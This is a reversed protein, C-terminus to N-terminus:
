KGPSAPPPVQPSGILQGGRQCVQVKEVTMVPHRFLTGLEPLVMAIEKGRGVAIVTLPTDAAHHLFQLHQRRGRITGDIRPLVTAGAIGRRYLLERVAEFAPVESGSSARVSAAAARFGRSAGPALSPQRRNFPHSGLEGCGSDRREHEVTLPILETWPCRPEGAKDGGTFQQCCSTWAIPRGDPRSHPTLDPRM